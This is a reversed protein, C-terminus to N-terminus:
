NIKYVRVHLEVVCEPNSIAKIKVTYTGPVTFDLDGNDIVYHAGFEFTQTNQNGYVTGKVTIKSADPKVGNGGIAYEAVLEYSNNRSFGSDNMILETFDHIDGANHVNLTIIRYLEPCATPIFKVIYTGPEPKTSDWGGADITYGDNYKWTVTSDQGIVSAELVIKTIDFTSEGIIYDVILNGNGDEGINEYEQDPYLWVYDYDGEGLVRVIFKLQKEPQYIVTYTVTYLGAKGYNLGGYDITYDEHLVLRMDNAMGYIEAYIEVDEPAFRDQGGLKVNIITTDDITSNGQANHRLRVIGGRFKAMVNMNDNVTFTRTQEGSLKVDFNEGGFWGIFTAERAAEATLTIKTGRNVPRGNGFEVTEGNEKIYGNGEIYANFVPKAAFEALISMHGNVTFTYEADSSILRPTQTSQDIWGIFEHYQDDAQATLTIQTGKDVRRGNGFEAKVGNELIVGGGGYNSYAIFNFMEAVRITIVAKVSPNKLYTYTITYVGEVSTDLLGDNYGITSTIKYETQRVLKEYQDGTKGLVTLNEPQADFLQNLGVKYETIINGENDTDFGSTDSVELKIDTVTKRFKAVLHLNGTSIDGYNVYVKAVYTLDGGVFFGENADFWGVFAYGEKEKVTVPVFSNNPLNDFVVHTEGPNDVFEGGGEISAEVTFSLAFRAYVTMNENVTFEYAKDESILKANEDAGEYWGAFKSYDYSAKAYVKVKEGEKVVAKVSDLAEAYGDPDSNYIKGYELAYVNLEVEKKEVFKAYIYTDSNITFTETANASYFQKEDSHDYAIYWGDFKYDDDPVATLTLTKGIGVEEYHGDPTDVVTVDGKRITGHQMFDESSEVYSYTAYGPVSVTLTSKVSTDRKFTITIPYEGTKTYDVASADIEYELSGLVYVNEDNEADAFGRVVLYQMNPKQQSILSYHFVGDEDFGADYGDAVIRSLKPVFVAYINIPETVNEIFYEANYSVIDSQSNNEYDTAWAFFEYEYESMKDPVARLTVTSGKEITGMSLMERPTSFSLKQGNMYVDGVGSIGMNVNVFNYEFVAIINVDQGNQEFRYETDLSVPQESRNGEADISYWGAFKNGVDPVAKIIKEDQLRFYGSNYKGSLIPNKEDGNVVLRGNGEFGATINAHKESISISVLRRNTYGSDFSVWYTGEKAFDTENYDVSYDGYYLPVSEYGNSSRRIGQVEIKTLDIEAPGPRYYLYSLNGNGDGPIGSKGPLLNLMYVGKKESHEPKIRFRAIVMAEKGQATFVYRPQDSLLKGLVGGDFCEYWGDFDFKEDPVATLIHKEGVLQDKFKATERLRTDKGVYFKGGYMTRATLDVIKSTVYVNLSSTLQTEKMTYTVVYHGEKNYDVKDLGEVDYYEKPIPVYDSSVMSVRKFARFEVGDLNINDPNGKKVFLVGGISGDAYGSPIGSTGPYLVTYSIETLDAVFKAVIVRDETVQLDLVEQTSFPENEMKGDVENYWGAFISTYAQNRATFQHTYDDDTVYVTKQEGSTLYYAQYTWFEKVLIDVEGEKVGVVKVTVAHREVEAGFVFLSFSDTEFSVKGDKYECPLEEAQNGEKIHFVVYDEVGDLPAPVAVKVKGNPQVKVDGSRVSIDMVAIESQDSASMKDPLLKLADMVKGENLKLKEAILQVGKEFDGGTVTVGTNSKIVDSIETGCKDCAACGGCASCGTFCFCASLAIILLSVMCILRRKM